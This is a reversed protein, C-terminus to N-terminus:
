FGNDYPPDGNYLYTGPDRALNLGHWWLDVHLQDAHFPRRTHRGAHVLAWSNPDGLRHYGGSAPPRATSRVEGAGRPGWCLWVVAENWPGPAYVSPRGLVAEGLQVLPRFDRYDTAALPLVLSGDNAGHNPAQGSTPDVFATIFDLSATTRA